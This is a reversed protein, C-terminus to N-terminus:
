KALRYFNNGIGMPLALTKSTGDDEPIQTCDRWVGASLNTKVQLSFGTSPSPWSVTINSNSRIISLPPSPPAVLSFSVFGNVDPPPLGPLGNEVAAHATLLMVTSRGISGNTSAIEFTAGDAQKWARLQVYITDGGLAFPVAIARSRIYGAFNGDLFSAPTGLPVFLTADSNTGAYLQARFSSSLPSAHDTDFVQGLSPDVANFTFFNLKGVVSVVVQQINTLRCLEPFHCWVVEASKRSWISQFSDVYPESPLWGTSGFTYASYTKDVSSFVYVTDNNAAPFALESLLLRPEPLM